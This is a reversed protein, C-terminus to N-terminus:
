WPSPVTNLCNSEYSCINGYIVKVTVHMFFFSLLKSFREIRKGLRNLFCYRLQSNQSKMEAPCVSRHDHRYCYMRPLQFKPRQRCVSNRGQRNHTSNPQKCKVHTCFSLTAAETARVLLVFVVRLGSAWFVFDFTIKPRAKNPITCTLLFRLLLKIEGQRSDVHMRLVFVARRM